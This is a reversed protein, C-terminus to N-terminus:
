NIAHNARAKKSRKKTSLKQAAWSCRGHKLAGAPQEERPWGAEQARQRVGRRSACSARRGHLHHTVAGQRAQRGGAAGGPAPPAPGHTNGGNWADELGCRAHARQDIHCRRRGCSDGGSSAAWRAPTEISSAKEMSWTRLLLQKCKAASGTNGCGQRPDHGGAPSRNPIGAGQRCGATPWAGAFKARATCGAPAHAAPARLCPKGEQKHAIM